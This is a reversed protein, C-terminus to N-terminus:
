HNRSGSPEDPDSLRPAKNGREWKVAVSRADSQDAKVPWQKFLCRPFNVRETWHFQLVLQSVVSRSVFSSFLFCCLFGVFAQRHFPPPASCASDAKLFNLFARHLSFFDNTAAPTNTLQLRCTNVRCVSQGPRVWLMDSCAATCKPRVTGQPRLVYANISSSPWGHPKLHHHFM